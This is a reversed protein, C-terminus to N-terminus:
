AEAQDGRLLRRRIERTVGRTRYRFRERRPRTAEAETSGNKKPKSSMSRDKKRTYVAMMEGTM